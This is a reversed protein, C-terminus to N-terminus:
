EHKQLDNSDVSLLTFIIAKLYNYLSDISLNFSHKSCKTQHEPWFFYIYIMILAWVKPLKDACFATLSQIYNQLVGQPM